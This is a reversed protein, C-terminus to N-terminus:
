SPTNVLRKFSISPTCSSTPTVTRAAVFLGSDITLITEKKVFLIIVTLLVGSQHSRTSKIADEIDPGRISLAPFIYHFYSSLLHFYFLTEVDSLYCRQYAFVRYDERQYECVSPQEPASEVSRRSSMLFFMLTLSTLTIFCFAKVFETRLM